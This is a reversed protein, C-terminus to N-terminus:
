GLYVLLTIFTLVMLIYFATFVGTAGKYFFIHGKEEHHEHGHSM